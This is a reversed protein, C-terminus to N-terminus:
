RLFCTLAFICLLICKALFTLVPSESAFFFFFFLLHFLFNRLGRLRGARAVERNKTQHFNGLHRQMRDGRRAAM